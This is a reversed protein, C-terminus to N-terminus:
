REDLNECFSALTELRLVDGHWRDVSSVGAGGVWVQMRSPARARLSAVFDTASGALDRLTVGIVITSPAIYRAARLVEAVPVQPGLVCPKVGRMSALFAALAIGFEHPEGPPTAFLMTTGNEIPRLRMMSGLLNRVLVSILHEQAISFYGREWLRGVRNMLPTLVNVVLSEPSQLLAAASLLEEAHRVDYRRISQLIKGVVRNGGSGREEDKERVIVLSRLEEDSLSALTRIPHGLATASRALELREIDTEGYRRNGSPDRRPTVIRYRREWARLTEVSLGTRKAAAAISYTAIM